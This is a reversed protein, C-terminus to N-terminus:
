TLEAALRALANIETSLRTAADADNREASDALERLLRAYELRLMHDLSPRATPATFRQVLRSLYRM